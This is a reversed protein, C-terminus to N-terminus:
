RGARAEDAGDEADASACTPAAMAPMTHTAVASAEGIASPTQAPAGAPLRTRTRVFSRSRLPVKMTKSSKM